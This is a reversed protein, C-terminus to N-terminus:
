PKTLVFDSESIESFKPPNDLKLSSAVQDSDVEVVAVFSDIYIKLSIGFAEFTDRFSKDSAEVSRLFCSSGDPVKPPLGFNEMGNAKWADQLAQFSQLKWFVFHSRAAILVPDRFGSMVILEGSGRVSFLYMESYGLELEVIKSEDAFACFLPSKSASRAAVSFFAIASTWIIARRNNFM